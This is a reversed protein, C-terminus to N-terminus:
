CYWFGSYNKDVDDSCCVGKKYSIGNIDFTVYQHNLIELSEDVEALEINFVEKTDLNIRCNTEIEVDNDWNSVFKANIINSM